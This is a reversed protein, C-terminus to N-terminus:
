NDSRVAELEERLVKIEENMREEKAKLATAYTELHQREEKLKTEQETQTQGQELIRQKEEEFDNEVIVIRQLEKNLNFELGSLEKEKANLSTNYSALESVQLMLDTNEAELAAILTLFEDKKSKLTRRQHLAPDLLEFTEKRMWSGTHPCAKNECHIDLVVTTGLINSTSRKRQVHIGRVRVYSDCRRDRCKTLQSTSDIKEFQEATALIHDLASM